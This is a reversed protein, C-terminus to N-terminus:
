EASWSAVHAVVDKLTWESTVLRDRESGFWDSSWIERWAALLDELEACLTVHRVRPRPVPGIVVSTQELLQHWAKRLEMGIDDERRMLMGHHRRQQEIRLAADITARSM